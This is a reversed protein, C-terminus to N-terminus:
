YNEKIHRYTYGDFNIQQKEGNSLTVFVTEISAMEAYPNSNEVIWGVADKQGPKCRGKYLFVKIGLTGIEEILNFNEDVYEVMVSMEQINQNSLNQFAFDSEIDYKSYKKFYHSPGSSVYDHHKCYMDVAPKNIVLVMNGDKDMKQSTVKNSYKVQGNQEVKAEITGNYTYECKYKIGYKNLISIAENEEKKEVNPGQSVYIEIRDRNNNYKSILDMNNDVYVVTPGIDYVTGEKFITDNTYSFGNIKKVKLGKETLKQEVEEYTKGKYEEFNIEIKNTESIKLVVFANSRNTAYTVSEVVGIKNGKIYEKKINFYKSIENLKEIAENETLGALDVQNIEKFCGTFMFSIIVIGLVIIIKKM